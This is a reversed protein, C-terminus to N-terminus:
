DHTVAIVKKGDLPELWVDVPPLQGDRKRAAEMLSPKGTSGMEHTWVPRGCLAEFRAHILDMPVEIPGYLTELEAVREDPTMTAPDPRENWTAACNACYADVNVARQCFHCTRTESM